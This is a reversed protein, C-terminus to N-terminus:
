SSIINNFMDSLDSGIDLIGTKKSSKSLSIWEKNELFPIVGLVPLGSIENINKLDRDFIKNICNIILGKKKEPTIFKLLNVPRMAQIFEHSCIFFVFTSLNLTELFINDYRVPLDIIIYNYISRANFILNTLMDVDFKDSQYLSLPPNLFDINTGRYRIISNNLSDSDKLDSEIFCNLNPIQPIKLKLVLDSPGECFNFDIYLIKLNKLDKLYWATNFAITTKGVGGQMSFFSIVQQNLFRLKEIAESAEKIFFSDKKGAEYSRDIVKLIKLYDNVIVVNKLCISRSKILDKPAYYSEDRDPCGTIILKIETNHVIHSAIEDMNKVPRSIIFYDPLHEEIYHMFFNVNDIVVLRINKFRITSLPDTISKDRNLLLVIPM